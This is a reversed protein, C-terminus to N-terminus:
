AEVNGTTLGPVNRCRLILVLVVLPITVVAAAQAVYDVTYVTAFSPIVVTLPLAFVVLFVYFLVVNLSSSRSSGSADAAATASSRRSRRYSEWYEIDPSMDRVVVDEGCVENVVELTVEAVM